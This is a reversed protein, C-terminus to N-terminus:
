KKRQFQNELEALTIVVSTPRGHPCNRAEPHARLYTLLSHLEERPLADNFKVAAKCAINAVSEVILEEPTLRSGEDRLIELVQEVIEAPPIRSLVMPVSRVCISSGGFAEVRLGMAALHDAFGLVLTQDAAGLDVIEPILLGQDEGEAGRFRDLLEEYIKREHLAHQDVIRLGEACPEVVYSRHVQLLAAPDLPPDQGMTPGPHHGPRRPAAPLNPRPKRESGRESDVGGGAPLGGPFLETELTELLGQRDPKDHVVADSSGTGPARYSRFAFPRDGAEALLARRLANSVAGAIRNRDRFRVETKTPHVNVDVESPDLELFLFLVPHDRPMILGRYAQTVAAALGADRIYRGNLFLYQNRRNSRVVSPPGALATIGLGGSREEVALLQGATAEGFLAAVRQRLEAAAALDLLKRGDHTLRLAVGPEPLLLRTLAEQCHGLETREQRLFKKRAPVNWFLNRVEVTTGVPAGAPLPGEASGDKVQLRAGIEDEARRSLLTMEAVSAISPLAEGRFGFSAVRFLDEVSSIKSTAHPQICLALDEASMGEGDDRVRVLRTGGAELDVELRSAGADLANEALEKVVAAPREVVEGAAIRNAVEQPLVRILAGM